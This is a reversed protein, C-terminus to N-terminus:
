LPSSHARSSARLQQLTAVSHASAAPVTKVAASHGSCNMHIHLWAAFNALTLQQRHPVASVFSEMTSCSTNLALGLAQAVHLQPPGSAAARAALSQEM